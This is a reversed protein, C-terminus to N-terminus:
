PWRTSSRPWEATRSRGEERQHQERQEPDHGALHRCRGVDVARDHQEDAAEHDRQRHLAPIQMPPDREVDDAQDAAARRADHEAEHDRSREERHPDRIRRGRHGHHRHPEGDHQLHLFPHAGAVGARMAEGDGQHEPDGVAARDAAHRRQDARRGVQRQHPDELDQERLCRSDREPCHSITAKGTPTTISTVAQSTM